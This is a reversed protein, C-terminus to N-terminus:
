PNSSESLIKQLLENAQLREKEISECLQTFKEEDLRHQKLLRLGLHITYLCQRLDHVM